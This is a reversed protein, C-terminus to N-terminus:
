DNTCEPQELLRKAAQYVQELESPDLTIKGANQMGCQEIVLYCGGADDDLSVSTVSDGFIPQDGENFVHITKILSPM